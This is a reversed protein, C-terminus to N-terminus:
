SHYASRNKTKYASVLTDQLPKYTLSLDLLILILKKSTTVSSCVHNQLFKQSAEFVYEWHRLVLKKIETVNEWPYASLQVPLDGDYCIVIDTALVVHQAIRPPFRFIHLTINVLRFQDERIIEMLTLYWFLRDLPLIQRRVM